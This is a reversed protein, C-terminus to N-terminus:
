TSFGLVGVLFMTRLSPTAAPCPLTEPTGPTDYFGVEVPNSPTSIDIVRLEEGANAIYAHDGVVSIGNVVDPLEITGLIQPLLPDSVDVIRLSRGSGSYAYMGSVTLSRTPGPPWLVVQEPCGEQGFVSSVFLGGGVLLISFLIVTYGYWMKSIM